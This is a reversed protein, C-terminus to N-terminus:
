MVRLEAAAAELVQCNLSKLENNSLNRCLCVCTVESAIDLDLELDDCMDCM